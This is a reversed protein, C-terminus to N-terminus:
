ELSTLTNNHRLAEALSMAVEDPLQGDLVLKQV